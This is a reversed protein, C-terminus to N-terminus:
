DFTSFIKNLQKVLEHPSIQGSLQTFSVLDAFLVTVEEFSDAITHEDQKLREAIAEPLINLLLRDSQEQATRALSYLEAQSIAIAVQDAVAQVLEVERKVWLRPSSCHACYLVGIRDAGVKIPISLFAAIGMAALFHQEMPDELTRIDHSLRINMLSLEALFAKPDSVFSGLAYSGLHSPLNLLKSEKVTEWYPEPLFHFWMFNCRDIQLLNRIEYVAAELIQELDLSNRIAKTLRNQLEEQQALERYKAESLRLVEEAQKRQTIDTTVALLYLQDELNVVEASLLGVVIEGSKRCFEFELSHIAGEDRLLERIIAREEPQAWIGLDATTRGIVEERSYGSARLFSENVDIFKGEELSSITIFDPSSRFAKSFKEESTKLAAEARKRDTIDRVIILAEDLGCPVIRSEEYRIEQDILLQYEHVQIHGSALAQQVAELRGRAVEPPLVEFVSKGVVQTAPILSTTNLSPLFDLFIGDRSVVMMIDPIAALLSRNIAESQRLAAESQKREMEAAARAAFVEL